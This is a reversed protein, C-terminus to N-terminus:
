EITKRTLKVCLFNNRIQLLNNTWYYILLYAFFFKQSNIWGIYWCKQKHLQIMAFFCICNCCCVFFCNSNRLVFEMVISSSGRRDNIISRFVSSVFLNKWFDYIYNLFNGSIKLWSISPVSDFSNLFDKLFHLVYVWVRWMDLPFHKPAYCCIKHNVEFM